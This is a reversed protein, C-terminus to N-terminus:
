APQLELGDGVMDEIQQPERAHIVELRGDLHEVLATCSEVWDGDNCYLVGSIERIEAKHIHGCIVGDVEKRRAFDAVAQEFNCIANTAQRTKSSVYQSLSWYGKGLRRRFWNVIGNLRVLGSYAHTGLIALWKYKLCVTDFQDGHLVYFRRGDVMRHIVENRIAIPGFNMGCYERFAEDHNGPVFTVCTGEKAFRFFRHVAAEQERGWHWGAKGKWLDLVDGVLYLNETEISDLFRNLEHVKCARTGLHIDSIWVSRFRAKKSEMGDVGNTGAGRM